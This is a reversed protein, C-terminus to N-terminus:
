KLKNQEKKSSSSELTLQIGQASACVYVESYPNKWKKKM